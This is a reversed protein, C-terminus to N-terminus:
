VSLSYFKDEGKDYVIHYVDVGVGSPETGIVYEDGFTPVATTAHELKVILYFAAGDFANVPNAITAAVDAPLIVKFIRAVSLDPVFTDGDALTVEQKALHPKDDLNYHRM